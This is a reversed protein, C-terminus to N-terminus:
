NYKETYPVLVTQRGASSCIHRACGLYFYAFLCVVVVVFFTYAGDSGEKGKNNKTAFRAVTALALGGRTTVPNVTTCKKKPARAKGPSDGTADKLRITTPTLKTAEAGEVTPKPDPEARQKKNWQQQWQTGNRSLLLRSGREEEGGGKTSDNATKKISTPPYDIKKPNQNILWLM